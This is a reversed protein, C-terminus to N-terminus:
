MLSRSSTRPLQELQTQLLKRLRHVAASVEPPVRSGPEVLAEFVTTAGHRTEFVDRRVTAMIGSLGASMAPKNLHVVHFVGEVVHALFPILRRVAKQTSLREPHTGGLVIDTGVRHMNQYAAVGVPGKTCAFLRAMCDISHGASEGFISELVAVNNAAHLVMSDAEDNSCADFVDEEACSPADDAFFVHAKKSTVGSSRCRASAAVAKQHREVHHKHTSVYLCGECQYFWAHVSKPAVWPM